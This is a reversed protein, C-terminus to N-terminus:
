SLRIIHLCYFGCSTEEHSCSSDAQSLNVYKMVHLMTLNELGTEKAIFSCSHKVSYNHLSVLLVYSFCKLVRTYIYLHVSLIYILIYICICINRGEMRLHM